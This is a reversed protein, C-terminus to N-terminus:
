ARGLEYSVLSLALCTKVGRTPEVGHNHTKRKEQSWTFFCRHSHKAFFIAGNRSVLPSRRGSSQGTFLLNPIPM